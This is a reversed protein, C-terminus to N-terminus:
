GFYILPFMVLWVIDIVHWVNTLMVINSRSPRRAVIVFLGARDLM